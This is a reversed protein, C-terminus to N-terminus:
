EKERNRERVMEERTRTTKGREARQVEKERETQGGRNRRRERGRRWISENERIKM